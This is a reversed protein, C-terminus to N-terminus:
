CILAETVRNEPWVPTFDTRDTLFDTTQAETGLADVQLEVPGGAPHHAGEIRGDGASFM